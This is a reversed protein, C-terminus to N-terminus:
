GNFMKNFGSMLVLYSVKLKRPLDDYDVDDLGKIEELSELLQKGTYEKLNKSAEHYTM